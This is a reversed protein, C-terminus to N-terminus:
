LQNIYTIQNVNITIDEFKDIYNETDFHTKAINNKYHEKISIFPTLKFHKLLEDKTIDSSISRGCSLNIITKFDRAEM